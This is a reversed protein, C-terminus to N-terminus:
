QFFIHNDALPVNKQDKHIAALFVRLNKKLFLETIVVLFNLTYRKLFPEFYNWNFKGILVLNFDVEM